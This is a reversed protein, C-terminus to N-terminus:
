AQPNVNTILAAAALIFIEVFASGALEHLEEIFALICQMIHDMETRLLIIDFNFHGQLIVGTVCFRQSGENVRNRGAASTRM